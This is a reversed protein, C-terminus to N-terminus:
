PAKLSVPSQWGARWWRRRQARRSTGARRGARSSLSVTGRITKASRKYVGPTHLRHAFEPNACPSVRERAQRRALRGIPSAGQAHNVPPSRTPRQALVVLPIPWACPLHLPRARRLNPSSPPLRRPRLRSPPPPRRRQPGNRMLSSCSALRQPPRLHTPSGPFRDLCWGTSPTAPRVREVELSTMWRSPGLSSGLSSSEKMLSMRLASSSREVWSGAPEQESWEEAGVAGEASWRGYWRALWEGGAGAASWSREDAVTWRRSNDDWSYATRAPPM